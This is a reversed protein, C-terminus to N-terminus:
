DCEPLQFLDGLEKDFSEPKYHAFGGGPYLTLEAVYLKESTDFFDVRVFPFDASLKKAIELMEEYHKPKSVNNTPHEGYVVDLRNWDLDYFSIHSLQGPFHDTVAYIYHPKGGFCLFKYDYLQKDVEEMYEEAIIRPVGEHYAYCFSNILVKRPDLWEALEKKLAKFDISNKDRIIKVCKGDGQLTSKLVFKEPLQAWDNELTKLDTWAGYLPITYGDGLKTKIYQKFLYKDVVNILGAPRYFEKYWQIKETFLVPHNIDFRHGRKIEYLKMLMKLRKEPTWKNKTKEFYRSYIGFVLSHIRRAFLYPLSNKLGM